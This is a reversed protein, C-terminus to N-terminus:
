LIWEKLIDATIYKPPRVARTNIMDYDAVAGGTRLAIAKRQAAFQLSNEIKEIFHKIDSIGKLRKELYTSKLFRLSMNLQNLEIFEASEQDSMSLTFFDRLELLSRTIQEKDMEKLEKETM